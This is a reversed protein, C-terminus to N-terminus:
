TAASTRARGCSTASTSSRSARCACVFTLEGAALLRALRVADRRDTKVRDSTKRPILGPAVVRVDLGREAAARALEFGSPGAEYVACASPGLGALFDLLVPPPGKLRRLSLEGTAPELVAAQTQGAHVDLGVKAITSQM